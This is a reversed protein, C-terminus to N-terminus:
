FEGLAHQIRTPLLSRFGLPTIGEAIKGEPHRELFETFQAYDEPPISRMTTEQADGHHMLVSIAGEAKTTEIVDFHSVDMVIAGEVDLTGQILKAARDYVKEMSGSTLLAHPDQTETEKDVQLCELCFSEM